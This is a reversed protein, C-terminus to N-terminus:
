RKRFVAIVSNNDPDKTRILSSLASHQYQQFISMFGHCVNQFIDETIYIGGTKLKPFAKSFFNVQADFFHLSDEIIIDFEDVGIETFMEDITSNDTIDVYFTKIRDEEFLINRDVDAGYVMAKPFFTKWGRQSAGPSGNPGMNSEINVNNTGLGIELLKIDKDHFDKLIYEYFITYNHHSCKDSHFKNMIECLSGLNRSMAVNGLYFQDMENCFRSDTGICFYCYGDKEDCSNWSPNKEHDMEGPLPKPLTNVIERHNKSAQIIVLNNDVYFKSTRLFLGQFNRQQFNDLHWRCFTLTVDEIIYFGKPKVKKFINVLLNRQPEFSRQTRDIIIDFRQLDGIRHFFDGISPIHSSNIHFTRDGFLLKPDGDGGFIKWKPLYDHWAQLNEKGSDRLGIELLSLSQRKNKRRKLIQNVIIEYFITYNRGSCRRSGVQNMFDCLNGSPRRRGRFVGNFVKCLEVNTGVCFYKMESSKGNCTNWTEDEMDMGDDYDDGESDYVEWSDNEETESLDDELKVVVVPKTTFHENKQSSTAVIEKPEDIPSFKNQYSQGSYFGFLLAISFIAVFKCLQQVQRNRVVM